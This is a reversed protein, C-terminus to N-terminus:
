LEIEKNKLQRYARWFESVKSCHRTCEVRGKACLKVIGDPMILPCTLRVADTILEQNAKTM